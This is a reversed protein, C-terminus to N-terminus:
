PSRGDKLFRTDMGAGSWWWIVVPICILLSVLSWLLTMPGMTGVFPEASRVLGALKPTVNVPVFGYGQGAQM